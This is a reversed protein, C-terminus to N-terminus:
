NLVAVGFGDEGFNNGSYFLYTGYATSIRKGFCIMESDWGSPSVDIGIQKDKRIWDIDNESEAYGLRYKNDMSRISYIMRPLGNEFWIDPMSLSFESNMDPKLCIKGKPQWHMFNASEQFRIDCAVRLKGHIDAWNNSAIYWLKWFEGAKVVCASSRVLSENETRDLIPVRSLRSFTEGQDSSVAVGTFIYYRVKNGLQWGSYFLYIKSEHRLVTMPTVGNEDFMGPAGVDLVPQPSIKKIKIPNNAWVDVYGIRGIQEKDWFAIFIRITEQDILIPIPVYAHSQAWPLEGVPKYILGLKHWHMKEALLM